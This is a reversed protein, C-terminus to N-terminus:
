GSCWPGRGVANVVVGPVRGVANVVVSPAGGQLM